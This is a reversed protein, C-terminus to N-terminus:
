GAMEWSRWGAHMPFYLGLQIPQPALQQMLLAYRQMPAQYRLRENDLFSDLDRGQHWSSKFDIVWRMGEQDVFTRDLVLRQPKGAILGTLALESEGQEHRSNDLIWRGREDALTNLLATAVMGTAMELQEVPVGLRDLHATYAAHRAAVRQPTWHQIGEQIITHLFRHVVIGVLRVREGAWEFEVAEETVVQEMEQARLPPPPPPPSWDLALRQLLGVPREPTAVAPPVAPPSNNAFHNEAAPWLLELFSGAAPPQEPKKLHGLLHLQQRARTAAVYLLRGSEFAGKRKDTHRIYAHIPDEEEQDVRKLPGLLLGAEHEMWSLLSKDDHRSTRGLGPLIVTDFELGKAKHITMVMLRGDAEPDVASYLAAVRKAFGALDPLTGGREVAGLLAFFQQADALGQPHCLTAPGGLGQWIHEVWFRLSGTGPFANCQRRYHIAESFLERVWGLRQAGEPSLRSSQEPAVIREWLTFAPSPQHAETTTAPTSVLASLDALSLGCWPARLLALWAIRDAPCLLARTLSFLDQIVMANALSELDIGQYRLGAQTLAPLIHQLHTRSRVLIATQHNAAHAQLTLAVVQAAEEQPADAQFPHVTVPVGERHPRFPVSAHFRVAGVRSDDEAPMLRPFTANVWAVLGAQSRFNVSLTLPTLQVMGIGNQQTRLFLGVDAERFRYISQMPDGVLFLTRGDQGSWGATLRELLRYHGQSTDQFEDVLLHKLQYDVKLALNSPADPEGLAAEARLAIEAFDVEGLSQFRLHLQAVAMPLLQLLADLIKWQTETYQIPPLLRLAALGDQLTTRDSFQQLLAMARGKMEAFLRKEAAHGGQSAPPFGISVTLQKRWKGEKTLLLDALGLWQELQEPEAAPFPFEAHCTTLPSSSQTTRLYAGAYSALQWLAAKESETLDQAVAALGDTVVQQLVNELLPRLTTPHAQKSGIHRLWQDRRALMNALLGEAREVHNDLHDLLTAIAASWRTKEKGTALTNRAALTYEEQSNEVINFRGGLRSLVPLQRTLNACLADMTLVRLRGPHDLLQWGQQRDQELVQQGLQWTHHAFTDAEPAPHHQAATLAEVIRTKMEAAAKRTFTIAVLEEPQKVRQLLRLFRQTLLGTKGSGAPAQVIFSRNPDLAQTRAQIDALPPTPHANM